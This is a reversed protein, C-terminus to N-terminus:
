LSAIAKICSSLAPIPNPNPNPMHPCLLVTATHLGPLSDEGVQRAPGQHLVQLGLGTLMWTQTWLQRTWGMTGQSLPGLGSSVMGEWRMRGKREGPSDGETHAIPKLKGRLSPFSSEREM